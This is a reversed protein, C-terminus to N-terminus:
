ILKPFINKLELFVKKEETIEIYDQLIDIKKIM